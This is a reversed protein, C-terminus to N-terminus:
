EKKKKEYLQLVSEGLLKQKNKIEDIENKLGAIGKSNEESRSILYQIWKIVTSKFDRKQEIKDKKKLM